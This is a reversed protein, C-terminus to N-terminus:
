TRGEIARAIVPDFQALAIAAKSAKPLPAAAPREFPLVVCAETYKRREGQAWGPRVDVDRGLRRLAHARGYVSNLTRGPFAALIGVIGVEAQWLRVLLDDQEPSWPIRGKFRRTMEGM